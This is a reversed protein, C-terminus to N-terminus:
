MEVDKGKAWFPEILKNQKKNLHMLILTAAICFITAQITGEPGFDGGTIIKSGTIQTTLLSNTKENGSTIAGFIGSQMFNWAFHIAIPLWLNRAYIYAAGLLLGGEVAVCAASILSSNQNLLHLGGFIIASIILTIYSGLKEEIIRFLIGRILIEEFIAVTFAVTFPIIIFSVPNISVIKFGNCLYIVLITLCQLAVGISTGLVINKLMGI